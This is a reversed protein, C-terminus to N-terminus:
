GKVLRLQVVETPAGTRLPFWDGSGKHVFLTNNEKSRYTGAVYRFMYDGPNFIELNPGAKLVVQGGHTHGALTVPIGAQSAMDFADPNHALLLKLSNEPAQLSQDAASIFQAHEYDQRAFDIGLMKIPTGGTEVISAENLLLNFGAGRIASVWQDVEEMKDHNGICVHVGLPAKLDGMIKVFDAMYKLERDILDGTIVIMQSKFENAVEVLRKIREENTLLGMHTDSLQTITFGELDAPLNKVPLDLSYVQLNDRTGWSFLSTGSVLFPPLAVLGLRLIQRRSFTPFEARAEVAEVSEKAVTKESGEVALQRQKRRSQLKSIGWVPVGLFFMGFMWFFITGMWLYFIAIWLFPVNELIEFGAAMGILPIFILIMWAILAWRTYKRAKPKHSLDRKLWRDSIVYWTLNFGLIISAAILFFM